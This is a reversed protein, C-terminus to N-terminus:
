LLEMNISKVTFGYKSYQVQNIIRVVSEYDKMVAKRVTFDMNGETVKSQVFDVGGYAKAEDQDKIAYYWATESYGTGSDAFLYVVDLLTKETRVKDGAYGNPLLDAARNSSM